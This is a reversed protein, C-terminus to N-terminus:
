EKAVNLDLQEKESGHFFSIFSQKRSCGLEQAKSGRGNEVRDTMRQKRGMQQPCREMGMSALVRPSKLIWSAM